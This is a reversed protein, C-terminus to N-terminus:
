NRLCEEWNLVLNLDCMLYSEIDYELVHLGLDMLDKVAQEGIPSISEGMVDEVLSMIVTKLSGNHRKQFARLSAVLETEAQALIFTFPSDDIRLTHIPSAITALAKVDDLTRIRVSVEELNHCQQLADSPFPSPVLDDEGAERTEHFHPRRHHLVRLSAAFASPDPNFGFSDNREVFSYAELAPFSESDLVPLRPIAVDFHDQWTRDSPKLRRVDELVLQVLEPHRWPSPQGAVLKSDDLGVHILHLSRLDTVTNSTLLTLSENRARRM